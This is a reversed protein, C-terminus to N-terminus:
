LIAMANIYENWMNENCKRLRRLAALLLLAAKLFAPLGYPTTRAACKGAPWLRCYKPPTRPAAANRAPPTRAATLKWCSKKKSTRLKWKWGPLSAAGRRCCACASWQSTTRTKAYWYTAMSNGANEFLTIFPLREDAKMLLIDSTISVAAVEYRQSRGDDVIAMSLKANWVNGTIDLSALNVLRAADLTARRTGDHIQSTIMAHMMDYDSHYCWQVSFFVEVGGYMGPRVRHWWKRWKMMSNNWKMPKGHNGLYIYVDRNIHNGMYWHLDSHLCDTPVTYHLMMMDSLWINWSSCKWYVIYATM